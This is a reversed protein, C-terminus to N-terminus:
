TMLNGFAEKALKLDAEKQIKERRLKETLEEEASLPTNQKKEEEKFIFSLIEFLCWPKNEMFKGDCM